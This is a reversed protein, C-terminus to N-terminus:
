FDTPTRSPQMLEISLSCSWRLARRMAVLVVALTVVRKLLNVVQLLVQIDKDVLAM